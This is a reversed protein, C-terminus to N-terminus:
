SSTEGKITTDGIGSGIIHYRFKLKWGWDSEWKREVRKSAMYEKTTTYMSGKKEVVM